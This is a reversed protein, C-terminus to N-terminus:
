SWRLPGVDDVDCCQLSWYTHTVGRRCQTSKAQDSRVEGLRVRGRVCAELMVRSASGKADDDVTDCIGACSRTRWRKRIWRFPDNLVHLWSWYTLRDNM